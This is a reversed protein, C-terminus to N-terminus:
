EFAAVAADCVAARVDRLDGRGYYVANSLLVVSLDRAPDAWVSTGVFGTHGFADGSMRTGCSNEQTTKLAWGLGRRLVPDFAQESVGERATAAALLTQPRATCAALYAEALAAVDRATGFLGAHGAVGGMLYAKEDHVFGRVRGRWADCETPPIAAAEDPRPRFGTAEAGLAALTAGVVSALSRGASRELVTGLAIFGLDSYVVREGPRAILPQALAFRTVNSGRLTRYDAGSAMGCVHALLMRPTIAASETQAWEPVLAVLPADLGLRGADAAQLAATAVFPKTLSALDFRTTPEVPAAGPADDLTGYAREFVARGGREVRLVAGTFRTGCAARLIEDLANARSQSRASM